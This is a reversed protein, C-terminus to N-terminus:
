CHNVGSAGSQDHNRALYRSRDPDSWLKKFILIDCRPKQPLFDLTKTDQSQTCQDIICKMLKSMFSILWTKVFICSRDLPPNFWIYIYIYLYLYWYIVYWWISDKAFDMCLLQDCGLWSANCMGRDWRVLAQWRAEPLNLVQVSVDHFTMFGTMDRGLYM